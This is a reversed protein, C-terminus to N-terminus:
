GIATYHHGQKKEIKTYDTERHLRSWRVVKNRVNDADNEDLKRCAPEIAAVIDTILIRSPSVAFKLGTSNQCDDSKGIRTYFWSCHWPSLSYFECNKVRQGIDRDYM